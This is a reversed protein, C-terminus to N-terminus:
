FLMGCLMVKALPPVYHWFMKNDFLSAAYNVMKHKKGFTMLSVLKNNYFLGINISSEIHGHTHNIDLFTELFLHVM